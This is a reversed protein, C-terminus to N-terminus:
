TVGVALALVALRDLAGESPWADGATPPADGLGATELETAEGVPAALCVTDAVGAAVLVECNVEGRLDVVEPAAAAAAAAV